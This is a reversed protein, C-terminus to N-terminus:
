TALLFSGRGIGGEEGSLNFMIGLALWADSEAHRCAYCHLHPCKCLTHIHMVAVHLHTGEEGGGM